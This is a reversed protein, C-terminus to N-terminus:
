ESGVLAMTSFAYLQVEVGGVLIKPTGLSKVKKVVDTSRVLISGQM